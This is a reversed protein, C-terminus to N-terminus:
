HTTNQSSENQIQDRVSQKASSSVNAYEASKRTVVVDQRDVYHFVICSDQEFGVAKATWNMLKQQYEFCSKIVNSHGCATKQNSQLTVTCCEKHNECVRHNQKMHQRVMGLLSSAGFTWIVPPQLSVLLM